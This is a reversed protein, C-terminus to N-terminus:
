VLLLVDVWFNTTSRTSPFTDGNSMRGGNSPVTLPAATYASFYGFTTTSYRGVPAHYSAMYTTNATISVPTTFTATRWGATTQTTTASGLVQGTSSYLKVTRGTNTSAAYYRIATVKGARTSSFQVGVTVPTTSTSTASPTRTTAYLSFTQAATTFSWTTAAPMAVGTSSSARASVTYGTSSTLAATPTFTAVRTTANYAVSGNVTAGAATRLTMTLSSTTIAKSFTATPRVTAVVNAAGAAPTTATVTPAVTDATTFSWTRPAAMPVGSPNVATVTVAYATANALASSPTFTGVRTTANYATTGSVASGAATKVDISLSSPEIARAFTATVTSGAAVNTAGASPTNATVTPAITDATTFTWDTPSRDDGRRVPQEGHGDGHIRHLRGAWRDSRLDGHPQRRRLDDDRGRGRRGRDECRAGVFRSQGDQRLDRDASRIRRCGGCRQQTLNDVVTAPEVDTTSFSWTKANPMTVGAASDASVSATLTAGSPWPAASTFTAKNTAADYAFQGGVLQGGADTVSMRLSSPSIDKDFTAVVPATTAVETADAAPSVATVSVPDDDSTTFVVDVFYNTNQYTSNPFNNGDAYVSGSGVSALPPNNVPNAFYGVSPRTSVTRLTTAPWTRRM